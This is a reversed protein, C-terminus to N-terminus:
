WQVSKLLLPAFRRMLNVVPKTEAHSLYDTYAWQWIHFTRTICTLVSPDAICQEVGWVVM